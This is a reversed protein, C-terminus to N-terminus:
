TRGRAIAELLAVREKLAEIELTHAMEYARFADAANTDVDKLDDIAKLLGIRHTEFDGSGMPPLSRSPRHPAPMQQVTPVHDPRKPNEPVPKQEETHDPPPSHHSYRSMTRDDTPPLTPRKEKM